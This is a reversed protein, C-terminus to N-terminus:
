DYDCELVQTSLTQSLYEKLPMIHDNSDKWEGYLNELLHFESVQKGNVFHRFVPHLFVSDKAKDPVPNRNIAFPNGDVKGFELSVTLFQTSDKLYSEKVYDLPLEEYYVGQESDM